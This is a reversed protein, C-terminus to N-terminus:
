ARSTRPFSLYRVGSDLAQQHKKLAGFHILRLERAVDQVEEFKLCRMEAVMLFLEAAIEETLIAIFEAVHM